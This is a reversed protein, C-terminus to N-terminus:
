KVEEYIQKQTKYWEQWATLKTRIEYCTGYNDVVVELVESAKVDSTGGSTNATSRSIENQSASNHLMVASSPLTCQNDLDKAVVDKIFQKNENVTERVIEVQKIVKEVIKINQEKSKQEAVAVKKEMEAVRDRWAKEVGYGGELYLGAVFLFASVIKIVLGYKSVFPLKGLVFGVFLGIVGTAFIAHVVYVLIADPIFALM